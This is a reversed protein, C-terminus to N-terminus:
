LQQMVSTTPWYRNVKYPELIDRPECISILNQDYILPLM